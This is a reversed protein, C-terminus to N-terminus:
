DDYEDEFLIYDYYEVLESLTVGLKSNTIMLLGAFMEPIIYEKM